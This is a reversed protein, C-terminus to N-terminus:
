GKVRGWDVKLDHVQNVFRFGDDDPDNDYQQQRVGRKIGTNEGVSRGSPRLDIEITMTRYGDDESASELFRADNIRYTHAVLVGLAEKTAPDRGIATITVPANIYNLTEIQAILDAADDTPIDSFLVQRGGADNGLDETFGEGGLFRNPQYTIGGYAFPRAGRYYGKPDEGPFDFRIVSVIDFAGDDLADDLGTAHSVPM